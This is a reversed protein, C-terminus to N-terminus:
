PDRRLRVAVDRHIEPLAIQADGQADVTVTQKALIEGGWTDWVEAKWTGPTLQSLSLLAPQCVAVPGKQDCVHSWSRDELRVWALVNTQGATAWALLPPTHCEQGERLRYGAYFWDSGRNELEVIHRGPPVDVAFTGAYQRLSQHDDAANTNPFDKAVAIQDDLRLELAAGAWGSVESVSVEFRTAWPLDIELRLPNHWDKHGVVGHQIGAVLPEGQVGAREVRLTKPRLLEPPSSWPESTELVLDHHPLVTPPNQWALRPVVRCFEEGPWDIGATFRAVHRYFHHMGHAHILEWYWSQAAGSAGDAVTLWLADHVQLGEPDDAFRDGTCDAGFEGVYHPKGFKEKDSQYRALRAVPDTGGYLHTQVYDLEPLGDIAPDGASNAFSTTILHRYPDISRLYQAMRQHWARVPETQYDTTGDVENWFEWSLVHTFAGYRAVLYRLKDRYFRDMTASTWFEAPRPLPGGHAANHPTKEWYPYCDKERLINFSDLCLKVFLGEREALKLVHELRWAAAQDFQGLGRGEEAKGSQELALPNWAPALWLRTATCGAQAFAPIWDDYDLTKRQPGPWCLNVGLPYFARGNDMELYRRDRPSLRVFGPADSAAVAIRWPESRRQGTRDRLCVVLVYDGAQSPTWRLHWGAPGDAVLEERDTLEKRRFPVAFYGPVSLTKGDPLAVEADLAVDSSDFPNDYTAGLEVALEVLGFQALPTGPLVVRRIELPEQRAYPTHIAEAVDQAAFVALCGLALVLPATVRM